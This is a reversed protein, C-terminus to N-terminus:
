LEDKLRETRRGATPELSQNPGPRRIKPQYGPVPGSQFEISGLGIIRYRWGTQRCFENMLQRFSINKAHVTVPQEPVGPFRGATYAAQPAFQEGYVKRVEASLAEAATLLPIDVIDVQAFCVDLPDPRHLTGLQPDLIIRPVSACGGFILAVLAFSVRM